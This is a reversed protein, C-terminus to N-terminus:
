SYSLAIQKGGSSQLKPVTKFKWEDGVQFINTKSNSEGRTFRIYVGHDLYDWEPSTTKTGHVTLGGDKSWTYQCEFLGGSTGTGIFSIVWNREYTSDSFGNGVGGRWNNEVTGVSEGNTRIPPSIGTEGASYEHAFSYAKAEIAKYIKEAADKFAFFWPRDRGDRVFSTQRKQVLRFLAEYANLDRLPQDFYGDSNVPLPTKHGLSELRKNVEYYADLVAQEETGDFYDEANEYFTPLEEAVIYTRVIETGNLRYRDGIDRTVTGFGGTFRWRELTLGKGWTGDTDVSYKYTGGGSHTAVTSIQQKGFGDLVTLNATASIIPTGTSSLYESFELTDGIYRYEM